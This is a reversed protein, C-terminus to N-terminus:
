GKGRAPRGAVWAVVQRAPRQTSLRPNPAVPITDPNRDLPVLIGIQLSDLGMNCYREPATTSDNRRNHKSATPTKGKGPKTSFTLAQTNPRLKTAPVAINPLSKRWRRNQRQDTERPGSRTAGRNISPKQRHLPREQSSVISHLAPLVEM